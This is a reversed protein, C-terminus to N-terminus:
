LLAREADLRKIDWKGLADMLAPDRVEADALIRKWSRDAFFTCEGARVIRAALEPTILRSRLARGVAFRVNVLALSSTASPNDPDFSVAVEDDSALYGSRFLRYVAGIGRMGAPWCEAARIAGLSAAGVVLAGDLIVDIVERPPIAQQQLFVGDLIVFVSVGLERERYLDGRRVPPRILSIPLLARAKEAALSSGLYVCLM